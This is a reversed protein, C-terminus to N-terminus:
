KGKLVRSHLGPPKMKLTRDKRREKYIMQEERCRKNKSRKKKLRTPDMIVHKLTSVNKHPQEKLVPSVYNMQPRLQKVNNPLNKAGRKKSRM